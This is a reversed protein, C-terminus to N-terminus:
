NKHEQKQIVYDQKKKQKFTLSLGKGKVKTRTTRQTRSM